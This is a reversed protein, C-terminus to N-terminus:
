ISIDYQKIMVLELALLSIIPQIPFYIHKEHFEEKCYNYSFKYCIEAHM